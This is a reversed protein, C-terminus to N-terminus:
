EEFARGSGCTWRRNLIEDLLNAHGVPSSEAISLADLAKNAAGKVFADSLLVLRPKSLWVKM